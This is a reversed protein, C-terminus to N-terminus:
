SEPPSEQGNSSWARTRWQVTPFRPSSTVHKFRWEKAFHSFEASDFQPGNDSRVQEPIGHRAFISKLARIIENSKTTKTMAVVEVYRSYYDIVILYDVGKMQFLDTAVIKWPRILCLHQLSHSQSTTDRQLACIRCQQVQIERSLGPWWM